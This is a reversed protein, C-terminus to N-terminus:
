VIDHRGLHELEAFGLWCQWAAALSTADQAEDAAKAAQEWPPPRRACGIPISRPLPAPCQLERAMPAM